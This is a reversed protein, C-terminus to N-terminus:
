DRQDLQRILQALAETVGDGAIQLPGQSEAEYHKAYAKEFELNSEQLAKRMSLTVIQIQTLTQQHQQLFQYAGLLFMRTEADM